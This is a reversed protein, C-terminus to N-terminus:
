LGLFLFFEAGAFDGAQEGVGVEGLDEGERFLAGLSLLQGAPGAEVFLELASDDVALKLDSFLLFTLIPYLLLLRNPLNDILETLKRQPILPILTRRRACRM